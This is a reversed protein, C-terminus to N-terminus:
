AGQKVTAGQTYANQKPRAALTKDLVSPGVDGLVRRAREEKQRQIHDKVRSMPNVRLDEEEIEKIVADLEMVVANREDNLAKIKTALEGERAELSARRAFLDDAAAQAPSVQEGDGGETQLDQGGPNDLAELWAAFAERTLDPAASTVEKRAIPRGLAIRIPELAPAGNDTWHEDNAPDLQRLANILEMDVQPEM